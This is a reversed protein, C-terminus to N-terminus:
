YFMNEFYIKRVEEYVKEKVEKLMKEGRVVNLVRGGVIKIKGDEKKMNVYFVIIKEDFNEFGSIEFGIDYKDLYGKLVFM